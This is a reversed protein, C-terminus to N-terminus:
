EGVGDSGPVPVTKEVGTEDADIGAEEEDPEDADAEEEDPESAYELIGAAEDHWSSDEYGLLRDFDERSKWGTERTNKLADLGASEDEIYVLLIEAVKFNIRGESDPDPTKKAGDKSDEKPEEEAEDLLELASRYSM